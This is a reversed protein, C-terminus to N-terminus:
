RRLTLTMIMVQLILISLPVFNEHIMTFSIETQDM